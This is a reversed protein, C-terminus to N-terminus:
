QLMAAWPYSCNRPAINPEFYRQLRREFADVNSGSRWDLHMPSFGALPLGAGERSAKLDAPMWEVGTLTHLGDYRMVIRSVRFIWAIPGTTVVIDCADPEGKVPVLRTQQPIEDIDRKEATM